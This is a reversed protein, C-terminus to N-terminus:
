WTSEEKQKFIDSIDTEKKTSKTSSPVSEILGSKKYDVFGQQLKGKEKLELQNIIEGQKPLERKRKKKEETSTEQEFTSEIIFNETEIKKVIVEEKERKIKKGNLKKLSPLMEIIEKEEKDNSFEIKLNRLKKLYKLNEINNLGKKHENTENEKMNSLDLIEVNTLFQFLKPVKKIKNKSLYLEKITTVSKLFDLKELKNNSLDLKELNPFKLDREIRKINKKPLEIRKTLPPIHFEKTIYKHNISIEDKSTSVSM